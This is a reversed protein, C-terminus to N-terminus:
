ITQRRGTTPSCSFSMSTKDAHRGPPTECDSQYRTGMPHTYKSEKNLDLQYRTLSIKMYNFVMQLLADSFLISGAKWNIPIIPMWLCTAIVASMPLTIPPPPLPLSIHLIPHTFHFIPHHIHRIPLTTDSIRLSISILLHSIDTNPLVLTAILAAWKWALSM